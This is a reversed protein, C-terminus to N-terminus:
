ESDEWETLLLTKMRLNNQLTSYAQKLLEQAMLRFIIFIQALYIVTFGLWTGGKQTVSLLFKLKLLIM